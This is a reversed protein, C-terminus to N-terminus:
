SNAFATVPTPAPVPLAYGSPASGSFGPAGPFGAGLGSGFGNASPLNGYSGSADGTGTSPTDIGQYERQTLGQFESNGPDNPDGPDGGNPANSAASADGANGTNGGSGTNGAQNGSTGTGPDGSTGPDNGGRSGRSSAGSPPVDIVNKDSLRQLAETLEDACDPCQAAATELLARAHDPAANVAARFLRVVCPCARQGHEARRAQSEDGGALAASLIAAASEHHALTAARVARILHECDAQRAPLGAPLQAQLLRAGTKQENEAARVSLSILLGALLLGALPRRHLFSTVASPM